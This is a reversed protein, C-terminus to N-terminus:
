GVTRVRLALGRAAAQDIIGQVTPGEEECLGICLRSVIGYAKGTPVHVLPGGSDGFILTALVRHVRADDSTIVGIRRERTPGTLNFGIGYGSLQVTDGLATEAATTYGGRPYSTNGKMAPTVRGLFEPRVQILAWDTATSDENGIMAVDGFVEGSELRVDEGVGNVCHAATGMYTVGGGDYVFNLTCAGVDTEHYAGPQIATSQAAAPAAAVALTAIAAAIARTIRM